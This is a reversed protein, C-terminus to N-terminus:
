RLNDKHCLLSRQVSNIQITLLLKWLKEYFETLYFAYLPYSKQVTIRLLNRLFQNLYDFLLFLDAMIEINRNLM